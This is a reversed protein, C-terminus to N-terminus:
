KSELIALFEEKLDTNETEFYSILLEITSKNQIMKSTTESMKISLESVEVNNVFDFKVDNSKLLFLAEDYLHDKSDNIIFKITNQKLLEIKEKIESLDMEFVKGPILGEIKYPKEDSEHYLIKIFRKSFTNPFFELEETEFNLVYFGRETDFDGWNIQYPTGVYYIYGDSNKLHYHGSFVIKANPYIKKLFNKDIKSHEDVVNKLIEFNKIEFHGIVYDSNMEQLTEDPLIWPIFAVTKGFFNIETPESIVKFNETEFLSTSNVSRKNKFYIDHNGLVEWGIINYKPLLAIIENKARYLFNIDITRRNDFFDGCFFINEIKENHAFKLLNEFFAKQEEFVREDFNKMGFHLDGVIIAKKNSMMQGNM